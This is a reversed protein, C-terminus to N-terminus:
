GGRRRMGFLDQQISVLPRHARLNARVNRHTIVRNRSKRDPLGFLPTVPGTKPSKPHTIVKLKNRLIKRPVGAFMSTPSKLPADYISTAPPQGSKAPPAPFAAKRRM